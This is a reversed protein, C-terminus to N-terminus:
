TKASRARLVVRESKVKAFGKVSFEAKAGAFGNRPSFERLIKIDMPTSPHAGSHILVLVKRLTATLHFWEGSHHEGRFAEHFYSELEDPGSYHGLLVLPHPNGTQLQAVRAPVDDARGIKVYKGSQLFYVNTM